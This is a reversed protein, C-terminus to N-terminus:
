LNRSLKHGGKELSSPVSTFKVIFLSSCLVSLLAKYSNICWAKIVTREQCLTFYCFLGCKLFYDTFNIVQLTLLSVAVLLTRCDMVIDVASWKGM